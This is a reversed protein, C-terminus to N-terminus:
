IRFCQIFILIDKFILPPSNNKFYSWRKFQSVLLAASKFNDISVLVSTQQKFITKHNKDFIGGLKFNSLNICCSTKTISNNHNGMDCVPVDMECDDAKGFLSYHKLEGQCYHKDILVFSSSFLVLITM